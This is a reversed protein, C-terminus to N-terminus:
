DPVPPLPDGRLACLLLNRARETAEDLLALRPGLKRQLLDAAKEEIMKDLSKELLEIMRRPPLEVGNMTLKIEFRREPSAQAIELVKAFDEKDILSTAHILLWHWFSNREKDPEFIDM